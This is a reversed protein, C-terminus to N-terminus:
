TRAVSAHKSQFFVTAAGIGVVGGFCDLLVDWPSGTRTSEFSQNTEDISAIAAVILMAILVRPWPGRGAFSRVAFVGLVFYVMFHALKRIYGHYLAITTEPANPFLYHLLPGIILSTENMSGQGSSLFFIVGIWILLPAYRIVRERRKKSAIVPAM